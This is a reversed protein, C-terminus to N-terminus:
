LVGINNLCITENDHGMFIESHVCAKASQVTFLSGHKKKQKNKTMFIIWDITKQLSLSKNSLSMM